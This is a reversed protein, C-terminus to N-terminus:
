QVGGHPLQALELTTAIEGLTSGIGRFMHAIGDIITRLAQVELILTANHERMRLFEECYSANTRDSIRQQEAAAALHNRLMVVEARANDLEIARPNDVCGAHPEDTRATTTMTTAMTAM